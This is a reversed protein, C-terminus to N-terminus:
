ISMGMLLLLSRVGPLPGFQLALAAIVAMIVLRVDRSILALLRNRDDKFACYASIEGSKQGPQKDSGSM